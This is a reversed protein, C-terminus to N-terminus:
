KLKYKNENLKNQISDLNILLYVIYLQLSLTYDCSRHDVIVGNRHDVIVGNYIKRVLQIIRKNIIHNQLELVYVNTIRMMHIVYYLIRINLM